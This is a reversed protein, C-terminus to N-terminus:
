EDVGELIAREADVDRNIAREESFKDPYRAKLKAINRERIEPESIKFLRLLIATYWDFDALEEGLNVRDLDRGEFIFPVLADAIESMESIMGILAHLAEAQRQNLQVSDVAHLWELLPDLANDAEVVLKSIAGEPDPKGYITHKKMVDIMKGFVIAHGIMPMVQKAYDMLILGDPFKKETRESEALYQEIQM